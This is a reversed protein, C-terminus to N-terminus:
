VREGERRGMEGDRTRAKKELKVRERVAGKVVLPPDEMTARVYAM